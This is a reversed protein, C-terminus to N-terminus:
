RLRRGSGHSCRRDTALHAHQHMDHWGDAHLGEGRATGEVLYGLRNAVACSPANQTSHLLVIRHVGLEHHGWDTVRRAARTAVAQGRAAPLVWYAIEGVGRELDVHLACRGLVADAGDVAAWM